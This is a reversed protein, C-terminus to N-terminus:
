DALPESTSIMWNTGFKDTLTGFGPAWFTTQYDMFVQGGEALKDFVSKGEAVTPLAMHISCGAMAKGDGMIDDSAMLLGGPFEVAGHAIWNKKEDPFEFGPMQDATMMMEIEAGFVDAYFKLAERCTGQFLLYPTPNM